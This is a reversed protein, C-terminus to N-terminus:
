KRRPPKINDPEGLIPDKTSITTSDIPTVIIEQDLNPNSIRSTDSETGQAADDVTCSFAIFALAIVAVASFKNKMVKPTRHNIGCLFPIKYFASVKQIYIKYFKDM